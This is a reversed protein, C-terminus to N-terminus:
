KSLLKKMDNIKPVKGKVVVVGDVVLAPTVMVGFEMIKMIDDVKEVTANLEMEAVAQRTVKELTECKACGTGLVKIDLGAPKLNELNM